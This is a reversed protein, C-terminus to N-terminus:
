PSVAAVAGVVIGTGAGVALALSLRTGVAVALALAVLCAGGGAGLGLAVRRQATTAREGAWLYAVAAAGLGAALGAPFGVFLSFAIRDSLLETVTAGVLLLAAVGAALAAVPRRFRM